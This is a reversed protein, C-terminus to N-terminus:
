LQGSREIHGKCCTRQNVQLYYTAERNREQTANSKNEENSKFLSFFFFFLFGVPKISVIIYVAKGSSQRELEASKLCLWFNNGWSRTNQVQKPGEGAEINCQLLLFLKYYFIQWNGKWNLQLIFTDQQVLNYWLQIM